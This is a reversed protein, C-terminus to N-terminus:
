FDVLEIFLQKAVFVFYFVESLVSRGLVCFAVRSRVVKQTLVGVCFTARYRYVDTDPYQSL